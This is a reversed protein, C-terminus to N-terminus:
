KKRAKDAASDSPEFRYGVWPDTHIYRPHAPDLEIKKRLQNIFVRLYETQETSESGWVAQLLKRHTVVKGSNGALYKLVDFEKSTLKLPEKGVKGQRKEFDVSVDGFAASGAEVKTAEM